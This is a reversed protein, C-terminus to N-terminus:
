KKKKNLVFFFFFFFFNPRLPHFTAFFFHCFFLHRNLFSFFLEGMGEEERKKMHRIHRILRGSGSLWSGADFPKHAWIAACSKPQLTWYTALTIEFVVCMELAKRSPAFYALVREAAGGFQCFVCFLIVAFIVACLAIINIHIEFTVFRTLM